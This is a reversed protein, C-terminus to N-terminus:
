EGGSGRIKATMVADRVVCSERNGELCSCPPRQPLPDAGESIFPENYFLSLVVVRTRLHNYALSFM